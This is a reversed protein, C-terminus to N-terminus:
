LLGLGRGREAFAEIGAQEAEGVDYRITERLYRRARDPPVGRRAAERALWREMSREGERRAAELIPAVAGPDVGARTAWIAYVM